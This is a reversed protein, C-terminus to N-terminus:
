RTEVVVLGKGRGYRTGDRDFFIAIDKGHYRVGEL